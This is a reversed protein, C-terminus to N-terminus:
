NILGSHSKGLSLLAGRQGNQGCRLQALHKFSAQESQVPAKLSGTLAAAKFTSNMLFLETLQRTEFTAVCHM